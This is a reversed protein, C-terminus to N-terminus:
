LCLHFTREAEEKILEWDIEDGHIPDYTFKQCGIATGTAGTLLDELKFSLEGRSSLKKISEWTLLVLGKVPDTYAAIYLGDLPNSGRKINSPLYQSYYNIYRHNDTIRREMTQTAGQVFKVLNEVGRIWVVQIQGSMTRYINQNAPVGNLVMTCFGDKRLLNNFRSIFRPGAFELALTFDITVIKKHNVPDRTINTKSTLVKYSKVTTYCSDITVNFLYGHKKSVNGFTKEKTTVM